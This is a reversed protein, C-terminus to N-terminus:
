RQPKLAIMGLPPLTLELMHPRGQWPIPTSWVGGANGTNSGGYIESDSNLIEKYYGSV